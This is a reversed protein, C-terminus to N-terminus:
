HQTLRHIFLPLPTMVFVCWWFMKSMLTVVQYVALNLVHKGGDFCAWRELRTRKRTWRSRRISLEADARLGEGMERGRSALVVMGSSAPHASIASANYQLLVMFVSFCYALLFQMLQALSTHLFTVGCPPIFLRSLPSIHRSYSRLKSTFFHLPGLTQTVNFPHNYSSFCWLFM